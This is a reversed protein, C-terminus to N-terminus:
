PRLILVPGSVADPAAPTIRVIQFLTAADNNVTRVTGILLGAPYRDDGSTLVRAGEQIQEDKQVLDMSVTGDSDTRILGAVAGGEVRATVEFTLDQVRRVSAHREFVSQVVGILAGQGSVVVDGVSVGDATGRNLVANRIGVVSSYTFIGAALPPSVPRPSLGVAARLFEAERGLSEAASLENRLRENDQELQVIRAAADRTNAAVLSLSRLWAIRGSVASTLSATRDAVWSLARGGFLVANVICVLVIAGLVIARPTTVRPM